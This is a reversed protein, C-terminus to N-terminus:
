DVPHSLCCTGTAGSSAVQRASLNDGRLPLGSAGKRGKKVVALWQSSIVQIGLDKENQFITGMSSPKDLVVTMSHVMKKSFKNWTCFDHQIEVVRMVQNKFRYRKKTRKSHRRFLCLYRDNYRVLDGVEISM